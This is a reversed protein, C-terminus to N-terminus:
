SAGLMARQSENLNRRGLQNLIIWIKAHERNPIDRVEQVAYEIGLEGCIVLRNHGDILFQEDDHRWVKPPDLVGEREINKKLQEREAPTLPPLRGM